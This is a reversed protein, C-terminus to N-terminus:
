MELLQNQAKAYPEGVAGPTKDWYGHHARMTGSIADAVHGDVGARVLCDEIFTASLQEHRCPADGTKRFGAEDLDASFSRRQGDEDTWEQHQFGANAKGLDHLGVLFARKETTWDFGDIPPPLALSVASADLLHKWLPHRPKSKAWLVKFGDSSSTPATAAEGMRPVEWAKDSVCECWRCFLRAVGGADLCHFLVPHFLGGDAKDSKGWFALVADRGPAIARL